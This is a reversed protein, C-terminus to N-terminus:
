GVHIIMALEEVNWVKVKGVDDPMASVAFVDGVKDPVDGDVPVKPEVVLQGEPIYRGRHHKVEECRGIHNEDYAVRDVAPQGNHHNHPTNEYLVNRGDMLSYPMQFYEPATHGDVEDADIETCGYLPLLGHVASRYPHNDEHEDHCQSRADEELLYPVSLKREKQLPHEINRKGNGGDQHEVSYEAAHRFPEVFRAFEDPCQAKLGIEDVVMEDKLVDFLLVPGVPGGKQQGYSQGKRESPQEM